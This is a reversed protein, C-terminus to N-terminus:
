YLDARLKNVNYNNILKVSVLLAFGCDTFVNSLMKVHTADCNIGLEHFVRNILAKGLPNLEANPAGDLAKASGLRFTIGANIGQYDLRGLVLRIM